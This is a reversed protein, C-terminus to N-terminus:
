ITWAQRLHQNPKGFLLFFLNSIKLTYIQHHQRAILGAVAGQLANSPKVQIDGQMIRCITQRHLEDQVYARDRIEEENARYRTSYSPPRGGRGRGRGRNTQHYPM